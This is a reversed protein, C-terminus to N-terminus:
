AARPPMSRPAMSRIGPKVGLTFRFTTGVNRESLIRITAGHAECAAKVAALGVGRGSVETAEDKTTVGDAFLSAEVDEATAHPLGREICRSKLKEWDIGRGNDQVEIVLQTGVTQAALRLKPADTRGALHREEESDLGHDVSNAVVHPLLHWLWGHEASARIGHAEVEFQVPGKELKEAITKARDALRALKPAVPESLFRSVSAVLEPRSAGSRIARLLADIEPKDVSVANSDGAFSKSKDAFRRWADVLANKDEPSPLSENELCRTEIDHVMSALSPLGFLGFNGKLTHLERNVTTIDSTECKEISAVISEAENLFDTFGARDALIQEIAAMLQQRDAESREKEIRLTIDSVVVLMKDFSTDTAGIPRYGIEYHRGEKTEVQAPLQGISMDLDLIGDVSQQWLTAFHGELRPVFDGVHSAFTKDKAPVGFWEDFARSREAGIVGDHGLTVFGQDVNDLVMRMEANRQDLDRTREAVLAELNHRHGELEADRALIMTLMENFADTLAGLEDNSVREARVTFDKEEQVRAAARSLIAVPRTLVRQSVVALGLALLAAIALVAVAIKLFSQTRAEVDATSFVVHLEGSKEGDKTIDRGLAIQGKKQSPPGELTKPLEFGSGDRNWAALREGSKTYIAGGLATPEADLVKLITTASDGDQFATPGYASQAVSDTLVSLTSRKSAVYTVRDYYVFATCALLLAIFATGVLLGILKGRVGLGRSKKVSDM